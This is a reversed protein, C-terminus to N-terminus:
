EKQRILGSPFVHDIQASAFCWRISFENNHRCRIYLLHSFFGKCGHQRRYTRVSIVNVPTLWQNFVRKKTKIVVLYQKTVHLWTQIFSSDFRWSVIMHMCLFPVYYYKGINRVVNWYDIENSNYQEPFYIEPANQVYLWLWMSIITVM